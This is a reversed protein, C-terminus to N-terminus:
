HTATKAYDDRLEQKLIKGIASRPLQSVICLATVRQTKGLRENLWSRIAEPTDSRGPKRVVFAIPTEGWKESAVGVIAAELVGEHQVAVAELDSPYVKFGGTIIMDKKRGVFTQAPTLFVGVNRALQLLIATECGWAISGFVLALALRRDTLGSMGRLVDLMVSRVRDVSSQKVAFRAAAAILAAIFLAIWIWRVHAMWQMSPISAELWGSAAMVTLLLLLSGIDAVRDALLVSGAIRAARGGDAADGGDGLTLHYLLTAKVM